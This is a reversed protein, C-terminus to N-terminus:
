QQLRGSPVDFASAPVPEIRIATLRLEAAPRGQADFTYVVVPIGDVAGATRWFPVVPDQLTRGPLNVEDPLGGLALLTQRLEVGEPIAGAAAVCLEQSKQGESLVEWVTCSLGATSEVRSTPRATLVSAGPFTSPTDASAADASLAVSGRRRAEVVYLTRNKFIQIANGSEDEIRLRGADFWIRQNDPPKRPNQLDIRAAELYMGSQALTPLTAGFLLAVGTYLKM